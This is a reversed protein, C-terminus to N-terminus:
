KFHKYQYNNSYANYLNDHFKNYDEFQEITIRFYLYNNHQKHSPNNKIINDSINASLYEDEKDHITALACGRKRHAIGEERHPNNEM